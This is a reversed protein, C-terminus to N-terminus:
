RKGKLFEVTVRVAANIQERDSPHMDGVWLDLAKRMEKRIRARLAREKKSM